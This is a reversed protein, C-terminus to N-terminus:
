EAGGFLRLVIGSSVWYNNQTTGGFTTRYYDVDFLRIDFRRSPHIDLGGGAKYSLSSGTSSTVGGVTTRESSGGVLGEVFPTLGWRYHTRRFFRPGFHNGYLVNKAGAVTQVSYSTDAVVQLWAKPNWGFSGLAGNLNTGNSAGGVRAFAFGGYLEIRPALRAGPRPKEWTEIRDARKIPAPPPEAAAPAPAPQATAPAPEVSVSPAPRAEAVAVSADAQKAPETSSSATAPAAEPTAPQTPATAPPAASSESAAPSNPAASPSATAPATPATSTTSTNAPPVSAAEAVAPSSAVAPAAAPASPASTQTAPPTSDLQSPAQGPAAKEPVPAEASPQVKVDAQSQTAATGASDADLSPARPIKTKETAMELTPRQEIVPQATQPKPQPAVQQISSVSRDLAILNSYVYGIQGDRTQVRSFYFGYVLITFREGCALNAVVDPTKRPKSFVQTGEAHGACDVYGIDDAMAASVALLCVALVLVFRNRLM